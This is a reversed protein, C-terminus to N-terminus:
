CSSYAARVLCQMLRMSVGGPAKGEKVIMYIGCPHDLFDGLPSDQPSSSDSQAQVDFTNSPAAALVALPDKLVVLDIDNYLVALLPSSHRPQCYGKTGKVQM